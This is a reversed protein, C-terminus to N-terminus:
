GEKVRVVGGSGSGRCLCRSGKAALLQGVLPRGGRRSAGDGRSATLSAAIPQGPSRATPLWRQMCVAHKHGSRGLLCRRSESDIAAVLVYFLEIRNLRMMHLKFSIKRVFVKAGIGSNPFRLPHM